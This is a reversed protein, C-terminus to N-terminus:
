KIVAFKGTKTGIGPADVLYFYVGHAIELGDKTRLDWSLRGNKEPASHHLQVVVRGSATFITVTCEKPLNVFDIRREGRGEDRNFVKRELTSVAIYPDPVVYINDLDDKAKRVDLENGILTFEFADHRDFRKKTLIRCVDGNQPPIWRSSDLEAPYAFTFRWLQRRQTTNNLINIIDGEDLAGIQPANDIYLFPMRRPNEPDTVDWVQFNAPRRNVSTDAGAELVRIEFDRAVFTGGSNPSNLDVLEITTQSGDVWGSAISDVQTSDNHLIIRFGEILYKEDLDENEPNLYVGLLVDDTINYVRMENTEGTYLSDWQQYRGDDMFEVRYRNDTKIALPNYIQIEISGTGIGSVHEIGADSIRPEQYGGVRELPTVAATNPDFAIPRGLPDIQINVPSETPSIPLLGELPSIDPYFSPHYGMDVSAVAYYYTRGNTVDTDVFHHQLGSDTGMNYSVGLDSGPGLESGISVPHLGFLGDKKDFIALPKFLFPNGFGDTITKIENFTPDTSKYIYYAEFDQGYIPDRSREARSDWQLYVKGDDGWTQLLPQLPPKSFNYDQDYIVQMTRKNRFIDDQDNGFLLAIAYRHTRETGVFQVFGSGYTFTIDRQYNDRVFFTDPFIETNWFREDDAQQLDTDKLYFSTLGVQDSEDNDTFEFNPEGVDPIGNAESGDPDPGPYENHQPGLGDHGVDDNLPEIDLLGNGNLDEGPDLIGNYNADETDHIGNGNLDEWATWDGDNDIGDNQSEDVMGDQDNDIGDEALGPSELFAFGFYGIPLGDNTLGIKNWAYTIDDLRDFSADDNTFPGGLDPDVNMGVICVPLDLGQNTIDYISIYIDEALRANWQYGRNEVKVGLGRRGNPWPLTDPYFPYYDFEDNERDDMVYYSEQDARVYAGFEGNWRGARVGPRDDGPDNPDRDDGPYSGPPWYEPWTERRHSIAYWGIENRLHLDLEGNRNFDEQPQLKGDGEGFDHTNPLGDVGVDESIGGILPETQAGPQDLNYYKPLPQWTYSHSLDPAMDGFTGFAFHDSVIHITDGHADVVEGAVFFYDGWIYTVNDPGKPWGIRPTNAVGSYSILGKNLVGGNVLNGDHIVFRTYKANGPEDLSTKSFRSFSRSGNLNMQPQQSGAADKYTTQAPIQEGAFLLFLGLILGPLAKGASCFAKSYAAVNM